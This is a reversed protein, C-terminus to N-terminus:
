VNIITSKAVKNSKSCSLSDNMIMSFLCIMKNDSKCKNNWDFNNKEKKKKKQKVKVEKYISQLSNKNSVYKLNIKVLNWHMAQKDAM